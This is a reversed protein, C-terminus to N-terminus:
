KFAKLHSVLKLFLKKKNADKDLSALKAYHEANETQLSKLVASLNEVPLSYLYVLMPMAEATTEKTIYKKIFTEAFELKRVADVEAIMEAIAEDAITEPNIEAGAKKLKTVEQGIAKEIDKTSIGSGYSNYFVQFQAAVSSGLSGKLYHSMIEKPTDELRDLYAAVRTWSRPSTGKSGDKPSFHFKGQNDILFDRVMKNVNNEKAWKLWAPFDATVECDVFRDLLAPDFEQVSYDGDAPNIAAIILTEQGRVRPLIHSHLRHDLILQLSANLIDTLARNFEDLFLVSRRSDLYEVNDQRLIQLTDTPLNYYDCYLNNLEGRGITAGSHAALVHEHFGEDAFQLREVKLTNPWAANVINTYWSPAAWVTSTMGGVDMTHPIGLMDGTDMLSLILPEYHM